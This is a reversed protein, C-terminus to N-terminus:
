AQSCLAAMQDRFARLAQLGQQGGAVEGLLEGMVPQGSLVLLGEVELLVRSYDAALAPVATAHEGTREAAAGATLCDKARDTIACFINLVVPMAPTDSAGLGRFYREGCDQLQQQIVSIPSSSSSSNAQGPMNAELHKLLTGLSM